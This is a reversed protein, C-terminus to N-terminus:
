DKKENEDKKKREKTGKEGKKQNEDKKKREEKM